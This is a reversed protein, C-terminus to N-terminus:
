AISKLVEEPAGDAVIAGQHMRVLRDCARMLGPRNSILIFTAEGRISQMYKVLHADGARDLYAGPDDLIYLRSRKLYARAMCLEMRLGDSLMAGNHRIITDLGKPFEHSNLNVGADALAQEIVSDEVGPSALTLNQRLTGYFLEPIQPVYGIDARIDGVDLQRINLGDLLVSGAQPQYLGAILKTATTKGVGTDGCICILEGPSIELSMNRIAPEVGSSHRFSVGQFSVGGALPAHLRTRIAIRREVPLRMLANVQKVTDQFQSIRNLSLFTTQIPSLIRWVVMMIAILAGISLDGNIVQLAGLGLTAIGAISVLSQSFTHMMGDFFRARFRLITDERVFSAFRRHWYPEAHLQRITSIKDLTEDIFNSSRSSAKGGDTTNQKTKPVSFLAVCVFVIALTVPVLALTGGLWFVLGLFVLTFPLDLMASTIHGTFFARITEFQRFRALQASIAVNELMPIPLGLIRDLAQNSLINHFRAGIYAILNSRKMRLYLEFGVTLAIIALFSVLTEPAKAGVVRDYVSMVYLPTAMSLINAFFTLVFVGLIPKIFQFLSERFWNSAKGSVPIKTQANEVLCVEVQRKTTAVIRTEMKRGDYIEIRNKETFRLLVCPAGKIIALCPLAQPNLNRLSIRHLATEFDLRSLVARMENLDAIPLLHPSAELIRRESGPWSRENLFKRLTAEWEGDKEVANRYSHESNSGFASELRGLNRHVSNQSDTQGPLEDGTSLKQTLDSM